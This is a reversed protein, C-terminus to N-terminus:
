ARRSTAVDTACARTSPAANATADTSVGNQRPAAAPAIPEPRTGTPLAAPEASSEHSFGVEIASPRSATSAAANRAATKRAASAV